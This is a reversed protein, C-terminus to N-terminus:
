KYENRIETPKTNDVIPLKSYIIEPLKILKDKNGGGFLFLVIIVSVISIIVAISFMFWYKLSYNVCNDNIDDGVSYGYLGSFVLGIVMIIFILITTVYSFNSNCGSISHIKGRISVLLNGGGIDYGIVIYLLFTIFFVLGVSSLYKFMSVTKSIKDDCNQDNIFTDMLNMIILIIGFIIFFTILLFIINDKINDYVNYMSVISIIVFFVVFGIYSLLQNALKDM